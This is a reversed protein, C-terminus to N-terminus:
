PVYGTLFDSIDYLHISVYIRLHVLIVQPFLDSLFTTFPASLLAALENPYIVRWCDESINLSKSARIIFGIKVVVEYVIM